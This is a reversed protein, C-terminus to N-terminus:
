KKSIVGDWTLKRVDNKYKRYKSVMSITQEIDPHSHDFFAYGEYFISSSIENVFDFVKQVLSDFEDLSFSYAKQPDSFSTDKHAYFKDRLTDIKTVIDGRMEQIQARWKKIDDDLLGDSVLTWEIDKNERREFHRTELHKKDQEIVNVLKYLSLVNKSKKDFLNSIILINTSVSSYLYSSIFSPSFTRIEDGSESMIIRYSDINVTVIHLDNIISEIRKKLNTRHKNDLDEGSILEFKHELSYIEAIPRM